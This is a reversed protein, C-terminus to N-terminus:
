SGEERDRPLLLDRRKTYHYELQRESYRHERGIPCADRVALWRRWDGELDAGGALAAEFPTRCPAPCPACLAPAPRATEPGPLDIVAAARLAFWPGYREHVALRCPAVDCLGAAHALAQIPYADPPPTHAWHVAFSYGTGELAREIRQACYGDIPDRSDRLAGDRQVAHIVHPWLARTNGVLLGLRDPRVPLGAVEGVLRSPFAQLIDLGARALQGSIVSATERWTTM